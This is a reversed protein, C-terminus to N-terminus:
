VEVLEKEAAHLKAEAVTQAILSEDSPGYLEAVRARIKAQCLELGDYDRRMVHWIPNGHGLLLPAGLDRLVRDRPILGEWAEQGVNLLAEGVLCTKFDSIDAKDERTFEGRKRAEAIREAWTKM